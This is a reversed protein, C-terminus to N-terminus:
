KVRYLNRRRHTGNKYFYAFYLACTAFDALYTILMWKTGGSLIFLGDAAMGIAAVYIGTKFLAGRFTTGNFVMYVMAVFFLACVMSINTWFFNGILLSLIFQNSSLAFM